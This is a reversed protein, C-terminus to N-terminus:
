PQARTRRRRVRDYLAVLAQMEEPFKESGAIPPLEGDGNLLAFREGLVQLPRVVFGRLVILVAASLLAAAVVALSAQWVVSRGAAARTGSFDRAAAMVGVPAGAANNLPILVVGFPVGGSERTYTVPETVVALQEPGALDAMLAANTAEFRIYKGVRKEDGLREPDVGKAFERLPREEVYFALDIAYATKLAALISGIDIGIEFSGVHTGAADLVPSVGFIAPGGRAIGIGKSPVRDKNVAVIMPRFATLDDGFTKPDHLRLLSTAPPLHFQGQDVGHRAAQNAFMPGFEAELGPRDRAAVLRRAAPLDAILEARALAKNGADAMATEVIARMLQFQGEEVSRTLGSFLQVSFAAMGATVVLIITILAIPANRRFVM